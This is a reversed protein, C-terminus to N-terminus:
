AEEAEKIRRQEMLNYEIQSYVAFNAGMLPEICFERLCDFYGLRTYTGANETNLHRMMKFYADMIFTFFLFGDQTNAINEIAFQLARAEAALKNAQKKQYAKEEEFM